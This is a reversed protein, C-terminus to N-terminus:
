PSAPSDSGFFEISALIGDFEQLVDASTTDAFRILVVWREEGVDVAAVRLRAHDDPVDSINFAQSYSQGSFVQYLPHNLLAEADCGAEQLGFPPAIDLEYGPLEGITITRPTSTAYSPNAKLADILEFATPGVAVDGPQGNRRSGDVDWHCPDSFLGAPREFKLIIEDPGEGEGRTLTSSPSHGIWGAPLDLVVTTPGLQVRYRGPELPGPNLDQAGPPISPGSPPPTPSPASAPTLMPAVNLGVIAVLVVAAAASAVALFRNMTQRRWPVPLPRRQRQRGIRAAVFDVVRDPATLGDDALYERLVLDLDVSRNM